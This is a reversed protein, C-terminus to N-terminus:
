NIAYFKKYWLEEAVFSNDWHKKNAKQERIEALFRESENKTLKPL